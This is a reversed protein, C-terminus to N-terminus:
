DLETDNENEAIMQEAWRLLAESREQLEKSKDLIINIERNINAPQKPFPIVQGM